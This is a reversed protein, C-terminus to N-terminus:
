SSFTQMTTEQGTFDMDIQDWLIAEPSLSHGETNRWFNIQQTHKWLDLSLIFMPKFDIKIILQM